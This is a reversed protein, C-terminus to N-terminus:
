ELKARLELNHMLFLISKFDLIKLVNKVSKRKPKQQTTTRNRQIIFALEKKGKEKYGFQSELFLSRSPNGKITYSQILVYVHKTVTCM